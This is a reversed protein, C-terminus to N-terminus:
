RRGHRLFGFAGLLAAGLLTLMGPEPVRGQITNLREAEPTAYDALTYLRDTLATTTAAAGLGGRFELGWDTAQSEFFLVNIAYLGPADFQVTTTPVEM